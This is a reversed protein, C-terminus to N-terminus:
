MVNLNRIDTISLIRSNASKILSGLSYNVDGNTVRVDIRIGMVSVNGTGDPDQTIDVQIDSQDYYTSFIQDLAQTVRDKLDMARDGYKAIISPLSTISNSHLSTQSENTVLFNALLVDAKKDVASIWGESSLTPVYRPM